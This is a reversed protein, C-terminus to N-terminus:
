QRGPLAGHECLLWPLHPWLFWIHGGLGHLHRRYRQHVPWCRRWIGLLVCGYGSFSVGVDRIMSNTVTLTDHVRFSYHLTESKAQVFSENVTVPGRSDIWWKNSSSSHMNLNLNDLFLSGTDTITINGAINLNNDKATVDDDILWDIHNTSTVFIGRAFNEIFDNNRLSARSTDEMEIGYGNDYFYNDRIDGQSGEILHLATITNNLIDNKVLKIKSDDVHFGDNDNDKVTNDAFFADSDLIMNVGDLMTDNITNNTFTGRGGQFYIGYQTNGTITNGDLVPDSLGFVTVGRWFDFITCDEITPHSQQQVKIGVDMNGDGHSIDNDIATGGSQSLYQIGVNVNKIHNGIMYPDSQDVIIGRGGNNEQDITNGKIYAETHIKVHIGERNNTVNNNVIKLTPGGSDVIIGRQDSDKIINDAITANSRTIEVAHYYM